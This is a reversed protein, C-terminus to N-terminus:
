LWCVGDDADHQRKSVCILFLQAFCVRERKKSTTPRNGFAFLPACGDIEPGISLWLTVFEAEISGQHFFVYKFTNRIVNIQFYWQQSESLPSHKRSFTCVLRPLSILVVKFSISLNVQNLQIPFSDYFTISVKEHDEYM